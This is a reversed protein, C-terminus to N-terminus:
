SRDGGSPRRGTGAGGGSGLPWWRRAPRRLGVPPRWGRARGRDQLPPHAHPATRQQQPLGLVYAETPRPDILSRISLASEGVSATSRRSAPCVANCTIGCDAVERAAAKTLGAIAHKSAVYATNYPIPLVASMSALNVIRGAVQKLFPLAYYTCHVIGLFNVEIVRRFLTLDPLEAFRSGVTIGANNVLMDIQGYEAVTREVLERCAAEDAVDTPLALARGGREACKSAVAQLREARRAALALWAGESALRLALAEGIGSSAGTIIVVKGDFRDASM